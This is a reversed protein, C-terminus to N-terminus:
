IEEATKQQSSKALAEDRAEQMLAVQEGEFKEGFRGGSRVYVNSLGRHRLEVARLFYSRSLPRHITNFLCVCM